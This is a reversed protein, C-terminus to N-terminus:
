ITKYIKLMRLTINVTNEFYSTIQVEENLHEAILPRLWLNMVAKLPKEDIQIDVQFPM